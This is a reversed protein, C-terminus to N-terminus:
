LWAHSTQRITKSWVETASMQCKADTATSKAVVSGLLGERKIPKETEPSPCAALLFLDEQDKCLQSVHLSIALKLKESPDTTYNIIFGADGLGM